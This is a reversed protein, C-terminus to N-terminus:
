IENKVVFYSEIVFDYGLGVLKDDHCDNNLKKLNATRLIWLLEYRGIVV